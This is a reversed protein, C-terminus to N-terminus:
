RSETACTFSDLERPAYLKHGSFAAYDISTRSLQLDLKALAQVCDVLWATEENASRLVQEIRRLDHIVGTENNVAMTCVMDAAPAYERLFGFDLQGRRDVPIELLERDVGLLRNWHTLAEPVAKHETAGYLLVRRAAAQRGDLRQQRLTCLTSFVGTQIAETAGSTFVIRGSEAGLVSRAVSRASELISRARLGTTHTSSPNGFLEKMADFAANAALPLVPTTANADLYIERSERFVM